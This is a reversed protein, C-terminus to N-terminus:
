KTMSVRAVILRAPQKSESKKKGCLKGYIDKINM